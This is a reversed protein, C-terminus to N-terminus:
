LKLFLNFKLCLKSIVPHKFLHNTTKTTFCITPSSIILDGYSPQKPPNGAPRAGEFRRRRGLRGTRLPELCREFSPPDDVALRGVLIVGALIQPSVSEPFDRISM